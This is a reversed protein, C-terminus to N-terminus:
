RSVRGPFLHIILNTAAARGNSLPLAPHVCFCRVFAAFESPHMLASERNGRSGCGITVLNRRQKRWQYEFRASHYECYIHTEYTFRDNVSGEM